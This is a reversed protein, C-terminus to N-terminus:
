INLIHIFTPQVIRVNTDVFIQGMDLYVWTFSPDHRFNVKHGAHKEQHTAQDTSVNRETQFYAISYHYHSSCCRIQQFVQHAHVLAKISLRVLWNLRTKIYCCFKEIPHQLPATFILSNEIMIQHLIIGRKYHFKSWYYFIWAWFIICTHSLQDLIHLGLVAICVLDLYLKINVDM